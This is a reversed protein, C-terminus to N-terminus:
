RRKIGAAQGPAGQPLAAAQAAAPRARVPRRLAVGADLPGRRAAFRWFLFIVAAVMLALASRSWCSGCAPAPTRPPRPPRSRGASPPATPQDTKVVALLNPDPENKQPRFDAPAPSVAGDYTFSFEGRVPEGDTAVSVYSVKYVGAEPWYAIPILASYATDYRRTEWKGDTNHYYEHM